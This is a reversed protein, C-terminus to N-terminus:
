RRSAGRSTTAPTGPATSGSRSRTSTSTRTPIWGSRSREHLTDGVLGDAGMLAAERAAMRRAEGPREHDFGLLHLLGHALYRDLEAALPRREARARRIATDLSVVVDGLCPGGEAVGAMPFSLVDTAKDKDRWRRNLGRIVGDTVVLISLGAGERELARLFRRASGALRRAQAQGRPHSSRSEIL